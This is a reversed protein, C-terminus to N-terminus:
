AEGDEDIAFLARVKEVVPSDEIAEALRLATEHTIPRGRLAASVTSLAVGSKEALAKVSLGRAVMAVRLQNRGQADSPIPLGLGRPRQAESSETQIPRM